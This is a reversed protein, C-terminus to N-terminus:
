KEPDNEPEFEDSLVYCGHYQFCLMCIIGLAEGGANIDAGGGGLHCHQFRVAALYKIRVIAAVVGVLHVAYEVYQVLQGPCKRLLGEPDAQCARAGLGNGFRQIQGKCLFNGGVRRRQAAAVLLHAARNFQATLVGLHDKELGVRDGPCAGYGIHPHAAATSATGAGKNVLDGRQQFNRHLLEVGQCGM